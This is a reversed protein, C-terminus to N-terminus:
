RPGAPATTHVRPGARGARAASSSKPTSPKATEVPKPTPTPTTPAPPPPPASAPQPNGLVKAKGDPQLSLFAPDGAPVMGLRGAASALAAPAQHADLEAQLQQVDDALGANAQAIAHRRLEDAAAATNLALLACLGGVLLGAVLLLFPARRPGTRMPAHAGVLRTSSWGGGRAPRAPASRGSVSM